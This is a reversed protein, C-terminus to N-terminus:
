HIIYGDNKIIREITELSQLKPIIEVFYDHLLRLRENESNSELVAQRQALEMGAKQAIRFSLEPNAPDYELDFERDRYVIRMLQNHLAVTKAALAADIRERAPPLFIVNGVSYLSTSPVIQSLAYRRRGEVLIDMRGGDYRKVLETVVATCGVRALETEQVFNIGFEKEGDLCENILQRYREEFIHLSLVSDPFLVVQLPFLPLLQEAM